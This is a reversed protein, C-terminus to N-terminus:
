HPGDCPTDAAQFTQPQVQLRKVTDRAETAGDDPGEPFKEPCVGQEGSGPGGRSCIPAPAQGEQESILAQICWVLCRSIERVAPVEVHEEEFHELLGSCLKAHLVFKFISKHFLHSKGGHSNM